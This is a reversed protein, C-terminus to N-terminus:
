WAPVGGGRRPPNQADVTARLMASPDDVVRELLREQQGESLERPALEPEGEEDEEPPLEHPPAPVPSAADSGEDASDEGPEESPGQQALAQLTWELNFRAQEDSPDLALADLFADRAAPLDARELEAVGLDFYARAADGPAEARVAAALFARAAADRRGRELREVGLEVLPAPADPEARVWAELAALTDDDGAPAPWALLLVGSAALWRGAPWRTRAGSELGLLLLALLVFPAVRVSRVKREVFAGSTAQGDRRIAAVARDLDVEGWADAALLTGDTAAALAALGETERRTVVTRGLRDVLLTGHHKLQAGAETGFALGVVRVDLRAAARGAELTARSGEDEGDSLLAVIRPRESGAEFAELATRLGAAPRSNAPAILATDLGAMLEQLVGRDPTLPTLLVGVDAFAALAVRDAPDLRELLGSAARRARTLRSPAVDAADMSHSLDLLLVVDVGSAPVLVVREGLRPGVAAVAIAVLALWLAFDRALWVGTPPLKGPLLRRYRAANRWAFAALALALIALTWALPGAWEPHMWQLANM